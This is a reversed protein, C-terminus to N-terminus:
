GQPTVDASRRGFAAVSIVKQMRNEPMTLTKVQVELCAYGAAGLNAPTSTNKSLPSIPCATTRATTLMKCALKHEGKTKIWQMQPSVFKPLRWGIKQRATTSAVAKLSAGGNDKFKSKKM